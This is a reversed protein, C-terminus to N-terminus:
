NIPTSEVADKSTNEVLIYWSNVTFFRDSEDYFPGINVGNIKSSVAYNYIPSILPLSPLEQQFLVQFNRYLRIRDDYNLSIRAQELFESASRDNWQAYNQGGQIQAQGWFPYPDPDPSDSLNIDVLAAQYDRAELAAIVESYPKIVIEVEVGVQAWDSVLREAIDQHIQSDPCILSFKVIQNDETELKDEDENMTIGLRSFEQIAREPSYEIQEIEEYYAWNGSLIPGNALVAQGSYINNIIRQRDITMLLARRFGSDQFFGVEPNNLNLYVMTIIPQTASYINLNPETLVPQLTDTSISALGEVEGDKYAQWLIQSTPYYRFVIENLYPQGDYYTENSILVVGVIQKNAILLRDFKYPGSGIPALNFPNDIMDDLSVNGLLHEPLIGFSLYDLFPSFAEPLAFQILSESLVNVAIESWFKQLDFPILGSESKLLNVTYAVDQTTLPQGDHWYLDSRLSFNYLTGDQSIGWTEALDPQATGSLDFKILGNFILRDIDRDVQNYIDLFPNLRQFEGVLGETYVGGSLPQPTNDSEILPNGQQVLLLIGVILGTVLIIILQWRFKKM